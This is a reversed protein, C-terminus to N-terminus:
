ITYPLVPMMESIAKENKKIEKKNLQAASNTQAMSHLSVATLIIASLLIKKM